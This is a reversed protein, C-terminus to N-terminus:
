HVANYKKIYLFRYVFLYGLLCEGIVLVNLARQGKFKHQREVKLTEESVQLQNQLQQLQKHLDTNQQHLTKSEIVECESSHLRSTLEKVRENLSDNVKSLQYLEESQTDFQQKKVSYISKSVCHFLFLVM